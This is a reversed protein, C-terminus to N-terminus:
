SCDTLHLLVSCIETQESPQPTFHFDVVNLDIYCYLCFLYLSYVSVAFELLHIAEELQRNMTLFIFYKM